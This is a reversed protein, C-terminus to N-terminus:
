AAGEGGAGPTNRDPHNVIDSPKARNPHRRNMVLISAGLVGLTLFCGLMVVRNFLITMKGTIPDVMICGMLFTDGKPAVEEKEAIEVATAVVRTAYETGTFYTSIKGTPTLMASAAVHNMQDKGENYFFRFGMSDTVKRVEEPTGTLFHFGSDMTAIKAAQDEVKLKEWGMRFTEGILARRAKALDPGEKPHVSLFIVNLDRGVLLHRKRALESALGPNESAAMRRIGNQAEEKILVKLLNDAELPCATTCRFFMPMLITARMKLLDGLRVDRGQDDKLVADTAIREGDKRDLGIRKSIEKVTMSPMAGPTATVAGPRQAFGAASLTLATGLALTFRSSIM